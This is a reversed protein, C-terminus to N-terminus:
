FRSLRETLHNGQGCGEGSWGSVQRRNAAPCGTVQPSHAKVLVKQQQLHAAIYPYAQRFELFHRRQGTM